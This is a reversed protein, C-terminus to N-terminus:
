VSGSSPTGHPSTKYGKLYEIAAELRSIDDKFHGLAMNCPHCLLKRVKGTSHDHDVCLRKEWPRPGDPIKGCIACAGKQDSIMADFQAQTVNARILSKRKNNKLNNAKFAEPNRLNWRKRYERFKVRHTIYYDKMRCRKCISNLNTATTHTSKRSYVVIAGCKPCFRRFQIKSKVGSTPTGHPLCLDACDFTFCSQGILSGTAPDGQAGNRCHCSSVASVEVLNM